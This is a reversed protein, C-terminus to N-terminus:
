GFFNTIFEAYEGLVNNHFARSTLTLKSAQTYLAELIRPHSHGQNVASYASLFDLYEKPRHNPFRDCLHYSNTTPLPEVTAGVFLASCSIPLVRLSCATIQLRVKGEVDYVHVGVGKELVM